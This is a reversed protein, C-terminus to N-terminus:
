PLLTRHAHPVVAKRLLAELAPRTVQHSLAAQAISEGALFSKVASELRASPAEHRQAQQRDHVESRRIDNLADDCSEYLVAMVLAYAATPQSFRRNTLTRDVIAKYAGELRNAFAPFFMSLWPGGAKSSVMSSLHDGPVRGRPRKLFQHTQKALTAAVKETSFTLRQELMALCIDTYRSIVENSKAHDVVGQALPVARSKTAHPQSYQSGAATVTHLAAGHKACLVVGPIHHMRRLYSVGWFGLDEDVCNPCFIAGNRVGRHAALHMKSTQADPALLDPPGDVQVAAFFPLLTHQFRFAEIPMRASEALGRLYSIEGQRGTENSHGCTFRSKNEGSVTLGNLTFVRGLYSSALEDPLPSPALMM